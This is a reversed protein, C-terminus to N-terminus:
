DVKPIWIIKSFNKIIKNDVKERNIFQNNVLNVKSTGKIVPNM